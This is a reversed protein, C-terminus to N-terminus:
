RVKEYTKKGIRSLKEAKGGMYVSLRAACGCGPEGLGYLEHDIYSWERDEDSDVFRNTSLIM